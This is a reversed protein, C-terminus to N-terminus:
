TCDSPEAWWERFTEAPPMPCTAASPGDRAPSRCRGSGAAAGLLRGFRSPRQAAPSRRRDAMAWALAAMAIAEASPVRHATEADEVKRSRLHVLISPIDIKM